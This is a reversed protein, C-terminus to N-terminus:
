CNCNFNGLLKMRKLWESAYANDGWVCTTGTIWDGLISRHSFVAFGELYPPVIFLADKPTHESAYLRIDIWPNINTESYGSINIRPGKQRYLFAIDFFVIFAVTTYLFIKKTNHSRFKTKIFKNFLLYLFASTLFLFCYKGIYFSEFRLGSVFTTFLPLQSLSKMLVDPMPETGSPTLMEAAFIWGPSLIM